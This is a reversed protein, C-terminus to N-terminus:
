TKRVFNRGVKVSYPKASKVLLILTNVPVSAALLVNIFNFGIKFAAKGVIKKLGVPVSSYFLYLKKETCIITQLKNPFNVRIILYAKNREYNVSLTM